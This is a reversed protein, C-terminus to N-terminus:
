IQANIRNFYQTEILTSFANNRWDSSFTSLLKEACRYSRSNLLLPASLYTLSAQHCCHCFTM